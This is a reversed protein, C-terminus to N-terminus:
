MMGFSKDHGKSEQREGDHCAATETKTCSLGHGSRQRQERIGQAGSQVMMQCLPTSRQLGSPQCRARALQTDVEFLLQRLYQSATIVDSLLQATIGLQSPLQQFLLTKQTRQTFALHAIEQLLLQLPQLIFIFQRLAQPAKTLRLLHANDPTIQSTLCRERFGRTIQGVHGIGADILGIM